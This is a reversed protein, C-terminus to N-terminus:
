EGSAGANNQDFDVVAGTMVGSTESRMDSVPKGMQRAALPRGRGHAGDPVVAVRHEHVAHM